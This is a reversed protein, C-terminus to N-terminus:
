QAIGDFISPSAAPDTHTDGFFRTRWLAISAIHETDLVCANAHALLKHGMNKFGKFPFAIGGDAADLACAKAHSDCKVITSM